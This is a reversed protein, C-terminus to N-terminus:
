FRRELGLQFGTETYSLADVDSKTREYSIRVFPSFGDAIFVDSKQVTLEIGIGREDPSATLVPSPADYDRYRAYLTPSLTLGFAVDISGFVRIQSDKYDAFSDELRNDEYRLSTGISARGSLSRRFGLEGTVVRGSLAIARASELQAVSASGFVSGGLLNRREFTLRLGYRDEAKRGEVYRTRGFLGLGLSTRDGLFRLGTQLGISTDDFKSGPGDELDLTAGLFAVTDAHTMLSTDLAKRYTADGVVRLGLATETDRQFTFPFIGDGFNLDAQDTDFDRGDGVSTLALSLNWDFGRRADIARIFSLIRLRVPEPLDGSLVTFFEQRARAWLEAEFYARALELRVRVLTPDAALLDLFFPIADNPRGTNLLALGILFQREVAMLATDSGAAVPQATDPPAPRPASDQALGGTGALGLTLCLFGCGIRTWLPVRGARM